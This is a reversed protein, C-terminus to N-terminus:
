GQGPLPATAAPGAPAGGQTGTERGVQPASLYPMPNGGPQGANGPLEGPMPEPQPPMMGSMQAIQIDHLTQKAVVRKARAKLRNTSEDDQLAVAQKLDDYTKEVARAEVFGPSDELDQEMRDDAMQQPNPGLGFKRTWDVRTGLHMQTDLIAAATAAAALGSLNFRSLTCEVYCGARELMAKDIKLPDAGYGSASAVSIGGGDYAGSWDKIYTLSRHGVEQLLMPMFAVVPSFHGYGMENITDIANGSSQTGITQGQLIPVPISAQVEMKFLELWPEFSEGIPALPLKDLKEEEFLETVGGRYNQVEPPGDESRASSRIHVLAENLSRDLAYGLRTQAKEVKDVVTLWPLLFPEYLRALDRQPSSTAAQDYPLSIGGSEVRPGPRNGGVEVDSHASKAGATQRWNPVGIHWPCVWLDHTDTKITEGGWTLIVRERDWYGIFEKTIDVDIRKNGQGQGKKAAKKIAATVPNDKGTTPDVGDGFDRMVETFTADYVTYVANTGDRGFVPFVVKPDVRYLRQGTRDNGPDPAHYVAVMGSMADATLTRILDGQGQRFHSAKWSRVIEALHEEAATREERFVLGQALLSFSITQDAVFNCITSHMIRLLPSAQPEIEKLKVWLEDSNFIAGIEMGLRMDMVAMNLVRQTHANKLANAEAIIDSATPAGLPVYWPPPKPAINAEAQSLLLQFDTDAMQGPPAMPTMPSMGMPPPPMGAQPPLAAPMFSM